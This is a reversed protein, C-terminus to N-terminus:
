TPASIEPPPKSISQDPTADGYSSSSTSSSEDTPTANSQPTSARVSPCYELKEYFLMFVNGRALVDAETIKTVIEDNFLFWEKGRKGCAVYHGNDHRGSHNVICRLEYVAHVETDDDGLEEVWDSYIKLQAPFEVFSHNKRQNGWDDFISRNIHIALNQPLRGFLMHKMKTSLIKSEKSSTITAETRENQGGAADSANSSRSSEKALRTCEDCEVGDIMEPAFHTDLLAELYRSGGLGLNLTLCNFSTLSIGESFGCRQCRLKQSLFGELSSTSLAAVSRKNGGSSSLGVSEEAPATMNAARRLCGLGAASRKTFVKQAKTTEKEVADLIKSFYEQADQQQWTNMSRLVSPPWLTHRSQIEQQLQGMFVQLGELAPADVEAARCAEWSAEIFRKFAPLSAIGQLISNQFCSNDWNGLGPFTSETTPAIFKDIGSLTRARQVVSALKPGSYGTQLNESKNQLDEHEGTKQPLLGTVAFVSHQLTRQLNRPFLGTVTEYVKRKVTTEYTLHTYGYYLILMLLFPGIATQLRQLLDVRHPGDTEALNDAMTGTM